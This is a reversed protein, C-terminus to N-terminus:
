SVFINQVVKELFTNQSVNWVILFMYFVHVGQPSLNAKQEKYEKVVSKLVNSVGFYISLLFLHQM